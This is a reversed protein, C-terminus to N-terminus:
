PEILGEPFLLDSPRRPNQLIFVPQKQLAHQTALNVDPKATRHIILPRGRNFGPAALTIKYLDQYNIQMGTADVALVDVEVARGERLLRAIAAEQRVMWGALGFGILPFIVVFSAAWGAQDLRAGEICAVPKRGSAYRVAVEDGEHWRSGTTFCVASETRGDATVYTFGYRVVRTDNVSMTTEGVATVLGTAPRGALSLRIGDLVRWPFFVVMFITGFGGFLLGFIIAPWVRRPGGRAARILHDPVQRPPASALLQAVDDATVKARM